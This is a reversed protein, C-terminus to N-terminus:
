RCAVIVADELSISFCASGAQSGVWCTLVFYDPYAMMSQRLRSDAFLRLAFFIM